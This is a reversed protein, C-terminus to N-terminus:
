LEQSSRAREENQITLIQAITRKLLRIRGPNEVKGGARVTTRLKMLELRLEDFKSNKQENTMGRIEKLRIAVM